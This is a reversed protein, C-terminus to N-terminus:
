GNHIKEGNVRPVKENHSREASLREVCAPHIVLACKPDKERHNAAPPRMRRFHGALRRHLQALLSKNPVQAHRLLPDRPDKGRSRGCTISLVEGCLRWSKGSKRSWM